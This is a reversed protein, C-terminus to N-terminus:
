ETNMESEVPNSVQILGQLAADKPLIHRARADFVARSLEFKKLAREIEPGAELQYIRQIANTKATYAALNALGLALLIVVAAIILAMVWNARSLIFALVVVVLGPILTMSCGLNFAQTARSQGADELKDNAEKVLLDLAEQQDPTLPQEEM